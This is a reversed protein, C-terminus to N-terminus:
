QIVALVTAQWDEMRFKKFNQKSGPFPAPDGASARM